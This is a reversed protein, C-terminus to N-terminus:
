LEKLVQQERVTEPHRSPSYDNEDQMKTSHIVPLYILYYLNAMKKHEVDARELFGCGDDDRFCLVILLCYIIIM